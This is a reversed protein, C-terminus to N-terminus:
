ETLRSVAHSQTGSSTITELSNRMFGDSSFDIARGKKEDIYSFLHLKKSEAIATMENMVHHKLASRANLYNVTTIISIPILSISLAFILLKTKISM